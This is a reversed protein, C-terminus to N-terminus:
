RESAARPNKGARGEDSGRFAGCRYRQMEFRDHKGGPENGSDSLEHVDQVDSDSLGQQSDM